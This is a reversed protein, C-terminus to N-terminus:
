TSRQTRRVLPVHYWTAGILVATVATVVPPWVGGVVMETIFFAVGCISLALFAIGTIAYRNARLLLGEKDPARFLIRHNSSPAILFTAAVTTCAFTAFFVARTLASVTEFRGYFPVTLLFAFLMQVGPLALKLEGLLEALERNVREKKSEPTSGGGPM